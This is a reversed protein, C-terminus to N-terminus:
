DRGHRAANILLNSLIRDLHSPDVRARLGSPVDLVVEGPAAPGLDTLLTTTAAAVEVADPRAHVRGADLGALTLLDDVLGDLRRVNRELPDLLTAPNAVGPPLRRLSEAFGGIVTLPTRLEHSVAALFEDKMRDAALLEENSAALQDNVDALRANADSLRTNAEALQRTREIALENALRERSATARVVLGALAAVVAGGLGLLWPARRSAPAVFGDTPRVELEWSQDGLGVDQTVVEADVPATGGIVAAPEPGDDHGHVTVSVPAPLPELEEILGDIAVVLGITAISRGNEDLVPVHVVAGPEDQALQVIWTMQSLQTTGTRVARDGAHRSATQGSNDFGIAAANRPLPYSYSIVRLLDEGADTHLDFGDGEQERQAVWGDVESRRVRDVYSVGVLTPFRAAVRLDDLVAAYSRHDLDDVRRLAVEIDIGVDAIRTLETQFEAGLSAGLVELRDSTARRQTAALWLSGVLAAVLISVVVGITRADLRRM